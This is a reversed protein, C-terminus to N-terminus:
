LSLSQDASAALIRAYFDAGEDIQLLSDSHLKECTPRGFAPLVHMYQFKSSNTQM